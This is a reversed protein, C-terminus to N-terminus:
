CFHWIQCQFRYLFLEFFKMQNRCTYSLLHMCVQSNSKLQINSIMNTKMIKQLIVEILHVEFIIKLSFFFEELECSKLVIWWNLHFIHSVSHESLLSFNWFGRRLSLNWKPYLTKIRNFKVLRFCSCIENSIMLSWSDYSNRIPFDIM